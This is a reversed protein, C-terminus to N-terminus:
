QQQATHTEKNPLRQRQLAESRQEKLGPAATVRLILVSNPVGDDDIVVSYLQVSVILFPGVKQPQLNDYSNKAMEDAINAKGTLTPEDAFM